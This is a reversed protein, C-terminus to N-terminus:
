VMNFDFWVLILCEQSLCITCIYMCKHSTKTNYGIFCKDCLYSVGLAGTISNIADYHGEPAEPTGRETHYLYIIKDQCQVVYLPREYAKEFKFVDNLSVGVNYPFRASTQLNQALFHHWPNSTNRILDYPPHNEQKAKAVVIARALCMNDSNTIQVIKKEVFVICIRVIGSSIYASFMYQQWVYNSRVISRWRNDPLCYM